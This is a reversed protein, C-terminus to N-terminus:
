IIRLKEGDIVFYHNNNNHYYINKIVPKLSQWPVGHEFKKPYRKKLKYFAKMRHEPNDLCVLFEHFIRFVMIEKNKYRLQRIANIICGPKKDVDRILDKVFRPKQYILEECKGFTNM